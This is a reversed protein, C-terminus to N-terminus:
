ENNNDVGEFGIMAQVVMDCADKYIKTEREFIKMIQKEADTFVEEDTYGHAIFHHTFIENHRDGRRLTILGPYENEEDRDDSHTISIIIKDKGKTIHTGAFISNSFIKKGWKLFM